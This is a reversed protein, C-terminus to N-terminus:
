TTRAQQDLRTEDGPHYSFPNGTIVKGATDMAEGSGSIEESLRVWGMSLTCASRTSVATHLGHRKSVSDNQGPFHLM